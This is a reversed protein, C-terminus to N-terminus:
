SLIQLLPVIAPHVAYRHAGDGSYDLVRRTELLALDQDSTAVFTGKTRLTQLVELERPGLGLMLSRGFGDAARETDVRRVIEAGALYAEEGARRAITILDRLVGGSWGVLSACVEDPLIDPAARKRLIAALYAQMADERVDVTPQLYFHDFLDTISRSPGYLVRSPGVIVCAVGARQLARVDNQVSARFSDVTALRDLSDFLVAVHPAEAPLADKLAKLAQSKEVLTKSLPPLPPAILGKHSVYRGPPPEYDPEDGGDWEPEEEVWESYGHAWQRFSQAADNVEATKVSKTLKLLQLGALVVLVGEQMRALDHRTSVDVYPAAMDQLQSISQQAVLLQTTKGSGVGGVVLHSSAPNLQLRAALEDALSRYPPAVYLDRKLAHRPNAAADLQAMYARFRQLRTEM